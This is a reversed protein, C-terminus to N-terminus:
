KKNKRGQKNDSMDQREKKIGRKGQYKRSKRDKWAKRKM